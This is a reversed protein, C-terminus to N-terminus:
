GVAAGNATWGDAPEGSADPFMTMDDLEVADNPPTVTPLVDHPANVSTAPVAVFITRDPPVLRADAEWSVSVAVTSSAAPLVTVEPASELRLMVKAVVVPVTPETVPSPLEVADPPTAVFVIV